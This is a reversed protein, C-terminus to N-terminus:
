NKEAAQGDHDKDLDKEWDFGAKKFFIQTDESVPAKPWRRHWAILDDIMKNHGQQRDKSTFKAVSKQLQRGLKDRPMKQIQGFVKPTQNSAHIFLREKAKEGEVFNVLEEIEDIHVYEM